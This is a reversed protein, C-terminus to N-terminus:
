KIQGDGLVHYQITTLAPLGMPGRAHLKQTSIGIEAGFGFEFGDTFRTSANHYLTAADISAFFTEVNESNQSVIAESHKTSYRRIHEVADSLDAAVKVALKLDLFEAAFDEESAPLIAESYSRSQEDGVITVGHEELSEILRPLHHAAWSEHVVVTECANCVSPRQTKANVTIQVAMDRDASEDIYVHCNGAGTEIVPVSSENVVQNILAAGGRPILVDIDGHMTFMEKLATRETDEILQVAHAPLGAKELGTQIIETLVRNSSLTSSSGRLLITNGTKIALSAADVTVNPRAEYIMGIVGLPVTKEQITLGNPRKNESKVTGIPDPLDVLHYIADIIDDLRQDTLTLRDILAASLGNSKGREVDETNAALVESRNKDLCSALNELAEHKIDTSAKSMAVVSAQAQDTKQKVESSM